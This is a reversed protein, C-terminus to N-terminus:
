IYWFCISRNVWGSTDTINWDTFAVKINTLSTCELFMYEYCRNVLETAPLEPASQLQLCNYFMGQYCEYALTTAPLISMASPLSKCHAFMQLYSGSKVTPCNIEPIQKLSTCRYFM